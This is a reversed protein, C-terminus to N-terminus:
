RTSTPTEVIRAIARIKEPTINQALLEVDFGLALGTAIFVGLWNAFQANISNPCICTIGGAAPGDDLTDNDMANM